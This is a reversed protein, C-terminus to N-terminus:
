NRGNKTHCQDSTGNVMRDIESAVRARELDRAEDIIEQMVPNTTKAVNHAGTKVRKYYQAKKVDIRQRAYSELEGVILRVLVLRLIYIVYWFLRNTTKNM